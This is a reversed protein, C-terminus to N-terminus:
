EDILSYDSLAVLNITTGHHILELDFGEGGLNISNPALPDPLFEMDLAESAEKPTMGIINVGAVGRRFCSGRVISIVVGDIVTLMTDCNANRYYKQEADSSKDLIWHPADNFTQGLTYGDISRDGDWVGLASEDDSCLM